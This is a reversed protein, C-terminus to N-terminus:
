GTVSAVVYKVIISHPRFVNEALGRGEHDDLHSAARTEKTQQYVAVSRMKRVVPFECELTHALGTM